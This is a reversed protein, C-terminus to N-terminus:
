GNNLVFKFLSQLTPKWINLHVNLCHQNQKIVVGFSARFYSISLEELYEVLRFFSYSPLWKPREFFDICFHFAIDRLLPRWHGTAMRKGNRQSLGFEEEVSNNPDKERPVLHRM